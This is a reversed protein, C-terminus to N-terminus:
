KAVAAGVPQQQQQLAMDRCTSQKCWLLRRPYSPAYSICVHGALRLGDGAAEIARDRAALDGWDM